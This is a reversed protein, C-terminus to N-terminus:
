TTHRGLRGHGTIRVQLVGKRPNRAMWPPRFERLRVGLGGSSQSGPKLVLLRCSYKDFMRELEQSACDISLIYDLEELYVNNKNADTKHTGRGWLKLVKLHPESAGERGQSAKMLHTAVFTDQQHGSTQNAMEPIDYASIHTIYRDLVVTSMEPNMLNFVACAVKEETQPPTGLSWLRGQAQDHSVFFSREPPSLDSLVIAGKVPEFQPLKTFESANKGSVCIWTLSHDLAMGRLDLLAFGEQSTWASVKNREFDWITNYVRKDGDQRIIFLVASSFGMYPKLHYPIRGSSPFLVPLSHHKFKLVPLDSRSSCSAEITIVLFTASICELHANWSANGENTYLLIDWISLDATGSGRRLAHWAFMNVWAPIDCTGCMRTNVPISIDWISLKGPHITALFQGGPSIQADLIPSGSENILQLKTDRIFVLQDKRSSQVVLKSLRKSRTCLDKYDEPKSAETHWSAFTESQLVLRDRWFEGVLRNLSKCTREIRLLDELESVRKLIELLIKPPLAVLTRRSKEHMTFGGRTGDLLDRSPQPSPPIPSLSFHLSCPLAGALPHRGNIFSFKAKTTDVKGACQGEIFDKFVALKAIDHEGPTKFRPADPRGESDEVQRRSRYEVGRTVFVIGLIDGWTEGSPNARERVEIRPVGQARPRLIETELHRLLRYLIHCLSQFSPWHSESITTNRSREERLESRKRKRQRPKPTLAPTKEERKLRPSASSTYKSSRSTRRRPRCEQHVDARQGFVVELDETGRRCRARIADPLYQSCALGAEGAQDNREFAPLVCDWSPPPTPPIKEQPRPSSPFNLNPEFREVFDDNCGLSHHVTFHNQSQTKNREKSKM